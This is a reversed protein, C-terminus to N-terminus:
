KAELAKIKSLIQEKMESNSVAHNQQILKYMHKLEQATFMDCYCKKNEVGYKQLIEHTEVTDPISRRM